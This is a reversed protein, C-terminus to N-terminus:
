VLDPHASRVRPVLAAWPKKGALPAEKEELPEGLLAAATAVSCSAMAELDYGGELVAAIRPQVDRLMSVCEHYTTSVLGLNGIPDRHHADFGASVLIVDPRARRVFPIVANAFVEVYGEHGTGPALPLNLITPTADEAAGTGPYLPWGHTSVFHVDKREWFVDQTGNGHHVDLDVITVRKGEGALAHAAIAVNNFLCFGMAGKKGAHHGPPRALAFAPANRAAALAAGASRLAAKLSDPTTFTDPDLAAGQPAARKVQALAEPTHVRLVDEETAPAPELFKARKWAVLARQAARVRDPREPHRPFSHADEPGSTFVPARAWM